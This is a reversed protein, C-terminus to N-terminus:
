HSQAPQQDRLTYVFQRIEHRERESREASEHALNQYLQIEAKAQETQGTERYARALRYHAEEVDSPDPANQIANRFDEIAQAPNKQETHLIGLQLSAAGYKPDVSVARKLHSEIMSYEQPLNIKRKTLAVAYFYNAEASQPQLTVFRLLREMVSETPNEVGQMKALFRYPIPDEPNLDSARCIWQVALEDAGRAFEAAGLGILLRSSGPFLHTGKTFVEAAPEPAHHLLLESGWDFLNSESPDLEAAKQYEGVAGLPDGLKEEVDALLHHVEATDHAPLLSRAQDRARPFGGTNAYAVALELSNRYDNPKIQAASQLYSIAESSKGEGALLQGLQSNADFDRPNRQLDARLSAEKAELSASLPTTGAAALGAAAKALSEKTRVVNDSGHGGLNTTDMVGSVTFQPSDFFQPANSSAPQGATSKALELTLDLNKTEGAKLFFSSVQAERYGPSTARLTYVGEHLAAFKFMGQANSQSSAENADGETQMRVTAAAVPKGQVDRVSGYLTAETASRQAQGSALTALWM